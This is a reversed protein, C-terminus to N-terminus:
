MSDPAHHPARRFGEVPAFKGNAVVQGPAQGLARWFEFIPPHHQGLRQGTILAVLFAHLGDIVGQGDM